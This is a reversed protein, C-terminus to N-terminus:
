PAPRPTFAPNDPASWPHSAAYAAPGPHAPPVFFAAFDRIEVDDRHLGRGELSLRELAERDEGEWIDHNDLIIPGIEPKENVFLVMRGRDEGTDAHTLACDIKLLHPDFHAPTIRSIQVLVHEQALKEKFDNIEHIRDSLNLPHDASGRENVLDNWYTGTAPDRFVSIQKRCFEYGLQMYVSNTILAAVAYNRACIDAVIERERKQNAAQAFHRTAYGAITDNTDHNDPFAAGGFSAVQKLRTMETAMWDDKFNWWYTPLMSLDFAKRTEDGVRIKAEGLESAKGNDGLTEAMFVAGPCRDHAHQILESWIDASVMYAADCRFGSFGRDLHWDIVQKWYGDQGNQGKIFFAQAEPSAYNIKAVDDWKEFQEVMAQASDDWEQRKAGTVVLDLKEDRQFKFFFKQDPAADTDYSVGILTGAGQPEPAYLPRIARAEKKIAAIDQDEQTVLGHDRGVHNFVLDGMVRIGNQAARATFYRLNADDMQARVDDPADAPAASLEPDMHFHDTIAYLSGSVEKHDRIVPLNSTKMFPSLWLANFGMDKAHDALWSRGDSEGLGSWTRLSGTLRPHIHLIRLGPM